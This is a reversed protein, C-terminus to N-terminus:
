FLCLYGSLTHTGGRGRSDVVPIMGIGVALMVFLQFPAQFVVPEQSQQQDVDGLDVFDLAGVAGALVFVQHLHHALHDGLEFAILQAM